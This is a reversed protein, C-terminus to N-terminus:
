KQMEEESSIKEIARRAGLIAGLMAGRKKGLKYSIIMGLGILINIALKDIEGTGLFTLVLMLVTLILMLSLKKM